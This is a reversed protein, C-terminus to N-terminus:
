DHYAASIANQTLAALDKRTHFPQVAIAALFVVEVDISSLALVRPLHKFFTIGGYYFVADRNRPTLHRDNVKTYRLCLPVIDARTALAADFLSNKFQHVRDGNSTTGEPFLAVPVGQGLIFAIDDIERKLGSMKRREVFLSGSLRALPGIIPTRKLEV